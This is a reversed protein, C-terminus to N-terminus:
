RSEENEACTAHLVLEYSVDLTLSHTLNCTAVVATTKM